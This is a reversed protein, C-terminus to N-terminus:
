KKLKLATCMGIIARELPRALLGQPTEVMTNVDVMVFIARTSVYAVQFMWAASNLNYAGKFLPQKYKKLGTVEKFNQL